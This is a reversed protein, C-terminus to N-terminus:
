TTRGAAAAPRLGDYVEALRAAVRETSNSLLVREHGCRGLGEALTTDRLLEVLAQALATADAVPVVRGSGNGVLDAVGGVPTVVVPRGLSMAELLFMPLVEFRSPLVCLRSALVLERVQDRSLQGADHVGELDPVAVDAEAGAVVLRATPVAERVQPWAELLVDLGKRRGKEGAFLVQPTAPLPPAEAPVLVPNPLVQVTRDPLLAQAVVATAPSPALIVHACRLISRVLQPRQAAFAKLEAGHLTVVVARGRVRALVVLLGERVFSGRESLHVHMVDADGLLVRVAARLLLRVGRRSTRQDYTPAFSLSWGPVDMGSTVELVSAIGGESGIRNGFHV